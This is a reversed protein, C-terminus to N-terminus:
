RPLRLIEGREGSAASLTARVTSGGPVLESFMLESAASAATPLRLHGPGSEFAPADPTGWRAGSWRLATPDWALTVVGEGRTELWVIVDQQQGRPSRRATLTAHAGDVDLDTIAPADPMPPLSASTSPGLDRGLPGEHSGGLPGILLGLGIAGIAIGAAVAGGLAFAPRVQIAAQVFSLWSGGRSRVRGGAGSARATEVLTAHLGTPLSELGAGALAELAPQLDDWRARLAPDAAAMAEVRARERGDGPTEFASEVREEFEDRSM